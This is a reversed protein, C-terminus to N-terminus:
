CSVRGGLQQKSLTCSTSIILEWAQARQEIKGIADAVKNELDRDGTIDMYSLATVAWWFPSDTRGVPGGYSVPTSVKKTLSVNSPFVGGEGVAELLHEISKKVTPYLAEHKHALVAMSAIASDRSWLRAYNDTDQATAVFGFSKASQTLVSWAEKSFRQDM